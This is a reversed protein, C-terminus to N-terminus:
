EIDCIPSGKLIPGTATIGGVGDMTFNVMVSNKSVKITAPIKGMVITSAIGDKTIFNIDETSNNVVPATSDPFTVQWLWEFSGKWEGNMPDEDCTGLTYNAGWEANVMGGGFPGSDSMSPSASFGNFCEKSEWTAGENCKLCINEPIQVKGGDQLKCCGTSCEGDTWKGNVSKHECMAKPMDGVTCQYECCGDQCGKQKKCSGSVWKDVPYIGLEESCVAKEMEQCTPLCCGISGDGEIEDNQDCGFFISVTLILGAIIIMKQFKNKKM